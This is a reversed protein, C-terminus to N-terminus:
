NWLYVYYGTKAFYSTQDNGSGGGSLLEEKYFELCEPIWKSCLSFLSTSEIYLSLYNLKPILRQQYHLGYQIRYQRYQLRHKLPQLIPPVTRLPQHLLQRPQEHHHGARLLRSRFLRLQRRM